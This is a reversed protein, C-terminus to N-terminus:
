AILVEAPLCVKKEQAKLWFRKQSLAFVPSSGDKLFVIEQKHGLVVPFIKPNTTGDLTKIAGISRGFLSSGRYSSTVVNKRVCFDLCCRSSPNHFSYSFQIFASRVTKKRTRAM